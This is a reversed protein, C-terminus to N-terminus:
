QEGKVVSFVILLAIFLGIKEITGLGGLLGGLFGGGGGGGAQNVVTEFDERLAELAEQKQQPDMDSNLISDRQAQYEEYAETKAEQAQRAERRDLFDAGETVGKIGIGGIAASKGVSALRSRETIPLRQSENDVAGRLEGLNITTGSDPESGLRVTTSDDLDDVKKAADAAEDGGRAGGRLGRLLGKIASAM